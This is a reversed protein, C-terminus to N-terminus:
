IDCQVVQALRVLVCFGLLRASDAVAKLLERFGVGLVGFGLGWVRFGLDWIRFGLGWVRFGVDEDSPVETPSHPVELARKKPKVTEPSSSLKPIVCYIGYYSGDEKGNNRYLGM